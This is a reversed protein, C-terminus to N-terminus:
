KNYLIIDPLWIIESPVKQPLTHYRTALHDRFSGVQQVTSYSIPYGSSRLLLKSTTSYSIQYGSSRQLFMSRKWEEMSMRIGDCNTMMGNRYITTKLSLRKLDPLVNDYTRRGYLRYGKCLFLCIRM